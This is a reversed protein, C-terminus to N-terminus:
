KCPKGSAIPGKFNNDKFADTSENWERHKFIRQFTKLRSISSEPLFENKSMQDVPRTMTSYPSVKAIVDTTICHRIFGDELFLPFRRKYNASPRTLPEVRRSSVSSDTNLHFRKGFWMLGVLVLAGFVFCLKCRGM